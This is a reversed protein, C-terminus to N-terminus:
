DDPWDWYPSYRHETPMSQIGDKIGLYLAYSIAVPLAVIFTLVRKM